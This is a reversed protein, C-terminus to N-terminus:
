IMHMQQKINILHTPIWDVALIGIVDNHCKLNTCMTETYYSVISVDCDQGNVQVGINNDSTENGQRCEEFNHTFNKKKLIDCEYSRWTLTSKEKWTM